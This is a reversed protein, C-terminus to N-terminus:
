RTHATRGAARPWALRPRDPGTWSPRTWPSDGSVDRLPTARYCCIQLTEEVPAETAQLQPVMVTDRRTSTRLSRASSTRHGRGPRRAAPSATPKRRHRRDLRVRLEALLNPGVRLLVHEMGPRHLVRDVRDRDRAGLPAVEPVVLALAVEVEGGLEDVDRDAVPMRLHDGRDLLLGLPEARDARRHRGLRARLEAPHQRLHRRAVQLHREERVAARLRVLVRDLQRAPVRAPVLHDRAVAGVVPRRGARDRERAVRPAPMRLGADRADHPHEVGVGVAAGGAMGIRAGDARAPRVELLDELVLPRMGDGGDDELRDDARVADDDRGVAIQLRDALGAVPM